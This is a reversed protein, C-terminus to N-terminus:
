SFLLVYWFSDSAGRRVQTGVFRCLLHWAVLLRGASDRFNLPGVAIPVACRLRYSSM